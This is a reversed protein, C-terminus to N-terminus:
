SWRVEYVIENAAPDSLSWGHQAIHVGRPSVEDMIGKMFGMWIAASHAYGGVDRLRLRASRGSSDLQDLELRGSNQHDRAWLRDVKRFFLEPTLLKTLLMMFQNEALAIMAGCRIFDRQAADDNGHALAAANLLEVQLQRPYWEPPSIEQLLARLEISIASNVRLAIAPDCEDRFFRATHKLVHGRVKPDSM